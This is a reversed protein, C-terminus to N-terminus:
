AFDMYQADLGVFDEGLKVGDYLCDSADSEFSRLVDFFVFWVLRDRGAGRPSTARRRRRSPPTDESFM